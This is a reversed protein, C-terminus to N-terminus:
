AVIALTGLPAFRPDTAALHQVRLRIRRHQQRVSTPAVGHLDAVTKAPSRDGLVGQLATELFLVRDRPSAVQELAEQLLAVTPNRRALVAVLDLVEPESSASARGAPLEAATAEDLLDTHQGIHRDVVKAVQHHAWVWPLAGGDPSWAGAVSAVALAVDVVLEDVEDASLRVGRGDAVRRVAGALQVRHRDILTVLAAADGAALAAMLEGLGGADM